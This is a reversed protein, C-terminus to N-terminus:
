KVPDIWTGYRLKMFTYTKGAYALLDDVSAPRPCLPSPSSGRGVTSKQLSSCVPIGRVQTM